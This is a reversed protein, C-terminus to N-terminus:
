SVHAPIEEVIYHLEEGNTPGAQTGTPPICRFKFQGPSVDTVHCDFANPQGTARDSTVTVSIKRDM